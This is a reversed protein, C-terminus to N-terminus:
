TGDGEAYRLAAGAFAERPDPAQEVVGVLPSKGGIKGTSIKKKVSRPTAAASGIRAKKPTGPSGTIAASLIGSEKRHVKRAPTNVVTPAEGDSASITSDRSKRRRKKKAPTGAASATGMEIPSVLTGRQQSGQMNKRPTGQRAEQEMLVQSAVEGLAALGDQSLTSMGSESRKLGRSAEVHLIARDVMNDHKRNDRIRKKLREVMDELDKKAAREELIVNKASALRERLKENTTSLDEEGTFSNKASGGAGAGSSGRRSDYGRLVEVERKSLAIEVEYRHKENTYDTELMKHQLMWHRAAARSEESVRQLTSIHSQSITLQERLTTPSLTAIEAASLLPIPTSATQLPSALIDNKASTTALRPTPDPTVTTATFPLPPLPSKTLNDSLRVPAADKLPTLPSRSVRQEADKTTSPTILNTSPPPTTVPQQPLAPYLPEELDAGKRRTSDSPTPTVDEIRGIKMGARALARLASQAGPGPTKTGNGGTARIKIHLATIGLEKCRTAVDQAALMAAYPSSEDRDAKVKQGGTIRCITERGSLDTVHVFTDNFSAFIRAVGFVLEGERIQPGLAINEEKQRDGKKAKPAM